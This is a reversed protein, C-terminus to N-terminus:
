VWATGNNTRGSAANYLYTLDDATWENSNDFALEDAYGEFFQGTNSTGLQGVVFDGSGSLTGAVAGSLDKAGGNVSGWAKGSTKSWGFGVFYWTNISPSGFTSLNVFTQTSGDAYVSVRFQDTAVIYQLIFEIASLGANTKCVIAQAAAAAAKNTIQLWLGCSWPSTSGTARVAVDDACHLNSSDAFLFTRALSIKGTTSGPKGAAGTPLLTPSVGIQSPESNGAGADMKFYATPQQPTSQDSHSGSIGSSQVSTATVSVSGSKIRTLLGASNITAISHDSTDWTVAQSPGGVGNVTATYQQTSGYVGQYSSATVTVSTVTSGASLKRTRQFLRKTRLSPTVRM